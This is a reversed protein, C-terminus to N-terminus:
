LLERSSIKRCLCTGDPYVANIAVGGADRADGTAKSVGFQDNVAETLSMVDGGFRGDITFNLFYNGLKFSNTLGLMYDPNANGVEEFDTKQISGDANLLVRGQADKKLNIGEIVGFPRGNILSYRYSNVGAPTLIVTGGLEEPLGSVENNNKSYNVTADWKFKDNDIIRANVLVEIGNNKIVGGNYAYNQYGEANTAPAPITLLQDKTENNYYTLEIGFRNNVFRWETGLEYSDQSEPKLNTGPRPGVTPNINQPNAATYASTPSTYFAPVDNGVQAYSARVKGFTIAEPMTFMESILWTAGVSPYFFSMNGTNALTSSWDNRGTVDLICCTKTVM